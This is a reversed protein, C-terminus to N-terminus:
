RGKKAIATTRLWALRELGKRSLSYFVFGRSDRRRELLGFRHLRALYSYSARAPYFGTRAAWVSPNLGLCNEFAELARLKLSNFGARQKRFPNPAIQSTNM